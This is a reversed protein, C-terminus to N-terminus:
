RGRDFVKRWASVDYGYDKGGALDALAKRAGADLLRLTWLAVLDDHSAQADDDFPITQM